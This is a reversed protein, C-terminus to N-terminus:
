MQLQELEEYNKKLKRTLIGYVLRYFLGIVTIFIAIVLLSVGLIIWVSVTEQGSSQFDNSFFISYLMTTLFLVALFSLNIWVYLKVTSRTKLINQMLVKASDTTQIKKYNLYFRIIFYILITYSVMSSITLYNEMGSTKIEEYQGNVRFFIDLSGWLLFEMISIVFIWKVMSSSRKLIMNYIDNYSLKPLSQEQKKWNQKLIELEDM